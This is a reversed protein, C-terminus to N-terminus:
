DRAEHYKDVTFLDGNVDFEGPYAPYVEPVIFDLVGQHERIAILHRRQPDTLQDIVIQVRPDFDEDWLILVGRYTSVGSCALYEGHEIDDLLTFLEITIFM